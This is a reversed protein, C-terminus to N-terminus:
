DAYFFAPPDPELDERADLFDNLYSEAEQQLDTPTVANQGVLTAYRKYFMRNSALRKYFRHLAFYMCAYDQSVSLETAVTTTEMAPWESWYYVRASGDQNAGDPDDVVLTQGWVRFSEVSSDADYVVKNIQVFDSPLDVTRAGEAWEIEVENPKRKRLRAMGENFWIIKQASTALSAIDGALADFATVFDDDSWAM